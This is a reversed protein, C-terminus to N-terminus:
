KYLFSNPMLNGLFASIGYFVMLWGVLWGSRSKQKPKLSFFYEGVIRPSPYKFLITGINHNAVHFPYERVFRSLLMQNTIFTYAIIQSQNTLRSHKNGPFDEIFISTKLILHSFLDSTRVLSSLILFSIERLVLVEGPFTERESYRFSVYLFQM